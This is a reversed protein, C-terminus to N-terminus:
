EFFITFNNYRKILGSEFYQYQEKSLSSLDRRKIKQILETVTDMDDKIGSSILSKAEDFRNTSLIEEKIGNIKQEMTEIQRRTSSIMEITKFHYELSKPVPIDDPYENTFVTTDNSLLFLIDKYPFYKKLLLDKETISNALLTDLQRYYDILSLLTDIRTQKQNQSITPLVSDLKAINERLQIEGHENAYSHMSHIALGCIIFIYLKKM